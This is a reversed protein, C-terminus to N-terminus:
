GFFFADVANFINLCIICVIMITFFRDIFAHSLKRNLRTGTLGGIIGGPIMYVLKDMGAYVSFGTDLGILMLKAGQSLLIILISVVAADKVKMSLFMCLIAVNIPGGGISLFAALAGLIIGTASSVFLNKIEWDPLKNKFLVIILLITLIVAQVGKLTQTNMTASITSFLQGGFIGGIAAGAALFIMRNELKFGSIVQRITSVLAMSFVTASSLVSITQLGDLGLTDLVPKIIVGGGLGAMSGCITATFALLFYIIVM